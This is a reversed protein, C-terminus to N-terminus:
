KGTTQTGSEAPMRVGGATQAGFTARMAEPRLGRPSLRIGMMRPPVMGPPPGQGVNFHM